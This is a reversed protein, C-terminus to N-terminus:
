TRLSNSTILNRLSNTHARLIWLIVVLRARLSWYPACPSEVSPTHINTNQERITLSPSGGSDHDVRRSHYSPAMISQVRYASTSLLGSTIDPANTRAWATTSLGFVPMGGLLDHGFYIWDERRAQAGPSRTRGSSAHQSQLDEVLTNRCSQAANQRGEFDLRSRLHLQAPIELEFSRSRASAAPNTILTVASLLM